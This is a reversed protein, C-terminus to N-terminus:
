GYIKKNQINKTASISVNGKIFVQLGQWRSLSGTEVNNLKPIHFIWQNLLRIKLVSLM